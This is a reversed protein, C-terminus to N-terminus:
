VEAWTGGESARTVKMEIPLRRTLGCFTWERDMVETMVKCAAEEDKEPCEVDIADHLQIIIRARPVEAKLRRDLEILELNMMEAASRQIPWNVTESLEPPRPYYRRGGLVRGESYGLERVRAMEEQWYAVTRYYRKDFKSSLTTAMNFTFKPDQRLAQMFVTQKGAGYQRALRIIKAARRVNKDKKNFNPKTEDPQFTAPDRDFYDCAEASYVDGSDIADQLVMDAAVMAMVRIELQRKDAHVIVHGPAPALMHRLIQEINMVNPASCSFRMTDTGCSNWGARLRGDPGIAQVLLDSNLYGLRKKKKQYTRWAALIRILEEPLEHTASLLLLSNEDVSIKELSEDTYMRKDTPDPLEFCRIGDKKHRKYILSQMAHPTCPFEADGIVARLKEASEETEQATSAKMFEWWDRHVYIGTTHMEAAIRSLDLHVRYLKEILEDNGADRCLGKWVRATFAADRAAYTLHQVGDSQWSM